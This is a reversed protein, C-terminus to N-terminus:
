GELCNIIDETKIAGVRLIKPKTEALTIITSEIKYKTFGENIIISVKGNLQQVASNGDISSAKGSINASTAAIPKGFAEILNIANIDDPFRISITSFGSTVLDPVCSKKHIIIALPGPLFRQALKFFREDLFGVENAMDLNSIHAALPKDFSRDKIEFVKRCADINYIDAGLGYVTETPFAIPEGAKLADVSKQLNVPNNNISFIETTM